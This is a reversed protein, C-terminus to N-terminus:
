AIRPVEAPAPLRKPVKVKPLEALVPLDLYSEVEEASRFSDDMYEIAFAVSMGLLCGMFAGVVTMLFPKPKLPKIPMQAPDFVRVDYLDSNEDVRAGALRTNLMTYLEENVRKERSLEIYRQLDDPLTATEREAEAVMAQLRNLQEEYVGIRAGLNERDIQLQTEMRESIAAQKEEEQVMLLLDDPRLEPNASLRELEERLRVQVAELQSEMHAGAPHKQTYTGETPSISVEASVSRFMLTRLLSQPNTLAARLAENRTDDGTAIEELRQDIGEREAKAAALALEVQGEEIMFRQLDDQAGLQPEDLGVLGTQKQFAVLAGESEGLRMEALRVQEELYIRNQRARGRNFTQFQEIFVDVLANAIRMTMEPDDWSVKIELVNSGELEKVKIAKKQLRQLVDFFRQDERPPSGLAKKVLGKAREAIVDIVSAPSTEALALRRVVPEVVQRSTFWMAEAQLAGGRGWTRATAAEAISPEKLIRVTTTAEYVPSLLKATGFASVGSIIAVLMIIWWRKFLVRRVLEVQERATVVNEEGNMVEM